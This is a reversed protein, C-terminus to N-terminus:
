AKINFLTNTNPFFNKNNAQKSRFLINYHLIFFFSNYSSLILEDKREKKKRRRRRRRSSECEVGKNMNYTPANRLQVKHDSITYFHCLMCEKLSYSSNENM